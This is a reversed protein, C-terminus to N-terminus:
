IGSVGHASALGPIDAAALIVLTHYIGLSVIPKQARWLGYQCLRLPIGRNFFKLPLYSSTAEAHAAKTIPVLEEHLTVKLGTV